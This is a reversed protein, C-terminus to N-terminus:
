GTVRRPVVLVPQCVVPSASRRRPSNQGAHPAGLAAPYLNVSIRAAQLHDHALGLDGHHLAAFVASIHVLPTM